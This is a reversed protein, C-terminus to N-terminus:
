AKGTHGDILRAGVEGFAIRQGEAVNPAGCVVRQERDGLDLTVLRLTDANPHPEVKLVHGVRVKEGWDGGTRVIEEVEASSLTLRQALEEIPQTIPVYDSLWSLPVKM